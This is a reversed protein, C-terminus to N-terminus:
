DRPSRAREDSKERPPKHSWLIGWLGIRNLNSTTISLNYAIAQVNSALQQNELMTGALGKGSQLGAMLNTLTESASQMNKVAASITAGNTALLHNASGALN